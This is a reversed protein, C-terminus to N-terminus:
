FVGRILGSVQDYEIDKKNIGYQEKLVKKYEKPLGDKFTRPDNLEKIKKSKTISKSELVELDGSEELEIDSCSTLLFLM